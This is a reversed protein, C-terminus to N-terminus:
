KRKWIEEGIARRLDNLGTKNYWHYKTANTLIVHGRMTEPDIWISTGTFGLHGFTMPGCGAGALTVQPNEVRDWGLSFRHKHKLLDVKVKQLFDTKKQYNLLTRCLGDVTSFLGAHSCFDDIVWANPDHVRGFNPLSNKYGNQPTPFHAPLDKWFLTEQDWITSCLKKQDVNKKKLELTVRLASFDSYLTESEKVPYSLIQERWGEHPLLGWSPVGGRHNLCLLTSPEFSEPSLFYSLSNTLPKTLSALDFYLTPEAKFTLDDNQFRTAEFAEFSEKKFDVVGVGLADFDEAPMLESVLNKLKDM